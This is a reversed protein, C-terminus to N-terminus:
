RQWTAEAYSDDTEYFRVTASRISPPMSSILNGLVWQALNEATVVTVGLIYPDHELLVREGDANKWVWRRGEPHIEADPVLTRHDLPETMQRLVHKLEGFDEVMGNSQLPGDVSLEVRGAHGHLRGCKPHGAIAHTYYIGRVAVGVRM